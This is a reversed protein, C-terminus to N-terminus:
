GILVESYWDSRWDQFSKDFVDVERLQIHFGWLLWAAGEEVMGGNVVEQKGQKKFSVGCLNNESLCGDSLRFELWGELDLELM